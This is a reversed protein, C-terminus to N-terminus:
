ESYQAGELLSLIAVGQRTDKFCSVTFNYNNTCRNISFNIRLIRFRFTSLEHRYRGRRALIQNALSMRTILSRTDFLNPSTQRLM